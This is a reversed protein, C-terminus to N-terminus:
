NLKVDYALKGKAPYEGALVNLGAEISPASITGVLVRPIHPLDELLFPNGFHMITSIRNSVQMAEFLSLIRPTFRERGVYAQSLCFTIFVTERDLCDSLFDATERPTPFENIRGIKANPFLARIREEIQAPNYWKGKFTDVQVDAPTGVETLIAFYYDGNRDLATTLGEDVHAFVSDTNIRDFNKLDEESPVVNQPLSLVKHQMTLVSQVTTDLREDSVMGEEYCERLWAMAKKHDDVFPLAMAAANGVSLGVSNKRGFKAVVGMMNLADTLALGDFGRDRLLQIVHKSLSAPYEADLNVFRAHTLMVGDLLGRNSLEIYPHLNYDLIHEKTFVSDMEAMHSDINCGTSGPYHKGLTLVGGDHMGQMEAAALETVRYKDSGISRATSGCVGRNDCMDLIPNCVVNYGKEAATAGIVKGFTYALEENDAVGLANQNGITHGDMGSEADTFVLLPYTALEKLEKIKRINRELLPNVWIGGLARDKILQEIYATNEVDRECDWIFAVMSLGFKQELSLEGLILETKEM